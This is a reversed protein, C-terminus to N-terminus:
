NWTSRLHASRACRLALPLRTWEFSNVPEVVVKTFDAADGLVVDLGLVSPTYYYFYGAIDQTARDM